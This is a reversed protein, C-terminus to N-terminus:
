RYSLTISVLFVVSYAIELLGIRRLNLDNAPRLVSWFARLIVPVFAILVFLSADRTVALVVLGILLFSHYAGCYFRMRQRDEERRAHLTLVRLKIYFVSSAFYALNFGWLWLATVSWSGRAVYYTAPATLTLGLIALVEALTTRDERRGAQWANAALAATGAVGIPILLYLRYALILPAACLAGLGLYIASRRGNGASDRKWVKARWWALLSERAIFVLTASLALLLVPTPFSGAALLGTLMPVYLMGWAGHERPLKLTNRLTM